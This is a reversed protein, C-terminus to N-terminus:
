SKVNNKITGCIIKKLNFNSIRLHDVIEKNTKLSKKKESYKQKLNEYNKIMEKLEAEKVKLIM